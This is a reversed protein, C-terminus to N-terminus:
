QQWFEAFELGDVVGPATASVNSRGLSGNANNGWSWLLVDEQIGVTHASGASVASWNSFASVIIPTTQNGINSGEGLRGFQRSGWAWLSGDARIGMNHAYGASVAVWDSANGVRFHTPQAQPSNGAGGVQGIRGNASGWAWLSGDARIGMTHQVGASVAVWDYATGVRLPTYQNTLGTYVFGAGLRGYARRGWAWLSGDARIGMTHEFGASVATWDSANGVRFPTPQVGASTAHGLRGFVRNGWAWLSGDARIGVTHEGGASM